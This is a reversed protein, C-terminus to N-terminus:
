RFLFDRGWTLHESFYHMVCLDESPPFLGKEPDHQAYGQWATSPKRVFPRKFSNLSLFTLAVLGILRHIRNKGGM